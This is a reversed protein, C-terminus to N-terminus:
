RGPEDVDYPEGLLSIVRGLVEDGVPIEIGKNDSTAPSDIGVGDMKTLCYAKVITKSVIAATEFKEITKYYTKVSIVAGMKPTEGGPFEIEIVQSNIVTVKGSLKVAM